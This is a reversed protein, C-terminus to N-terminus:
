EALWNELSLGSINQFHRTNNTVLIDGRARAVAAILADIEGTPRGMKRLQGQIKGFEEATSIYCKDGKREFQAM